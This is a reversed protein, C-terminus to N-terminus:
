YEEICYNGTNNNETPKHYIGNNGHLEGHCRECIALFNTTDLLLALKESEDKGTLFSTLHHVQTAPEVKENELCRECLPNEALYLLRNKKYIPNAYYKHREVRSESKETLRKKKPLRQISPM